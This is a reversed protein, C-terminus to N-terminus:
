IQFKLMIFMSKSFTIELVEQKDLQTVKQTVNTPWNQTVNSPWNQTFNTPWNSYSKRTTLKETAITSRKKPFMKPDIKLLTKPDIKFFCNHVLKQSIDTSWKKFKQFRVRQTNIIENQFKKLEKSSCDFPM